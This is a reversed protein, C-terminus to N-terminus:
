AGFVGLPCVTLAMCLFKAGFLIVKSNKVLKMNEPDGRVYEQQDAELMKFANIQRYPQGKRALLWQNVDLRCVM